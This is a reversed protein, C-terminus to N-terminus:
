EDNFVELYAGFEPVFDVGENIVKSIEALDGSGLCSEVLDGVCCVDAHRVARRPFDCHELVGDDFALFSQFHKDFFSEILPQLSPDLFSDFAAVIMDM